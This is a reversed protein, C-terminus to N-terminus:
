FTMGVEDPREHSVLHAGQLDVMRAAPLLRDALRKAHCMQAIIDSRCKKYLLAHFRICM